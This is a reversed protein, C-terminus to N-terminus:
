YTWIGNVRVSTVDDESMSTIFNVTSGNDNVITHMNFSMKVAEWQTHSQFIHRMATNLQNLGSQCSSLLTDKESPAMSTVFTVAGLLTTAAVVVTGSLLLGAIFGLNSLATLCENYDFGGELSVLIADQLDGLKVGYERSIEVQTVHQEYHRAM